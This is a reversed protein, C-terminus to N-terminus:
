KQISSPLSSYVLAAEGSLGAELDADIEEEALNLPIRPDRDPLRALNQFAVHSLPARALPGALRSTMWHLIAPHDPYAGAAIPFLAALLEDDGVHAVSTAEATRASDPCPRVLQALTRGY